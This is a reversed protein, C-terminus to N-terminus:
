VMPPLNVRFVLACIYTETSSEQCTLSMKAARDRPGTENPLQAELHIGSGFPRSSLPGSISASLPKELTCPPMRHMSTAWLPLFM